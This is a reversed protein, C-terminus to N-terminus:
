KLSSKVQDVSKRIRIIAMNHDYLKQAFGVLLGHDYNGNRMAKFAGDSGTNAVINLSALNMRLEDYANIYQRAMGYNEGENERKADSEMEPAQMSFEKLARGALEAQATFPGEMQYLLDGFQDPTMHVGNKVGEFAEELQQLKNPIVLEELVSVIHDYREKGEIEEVQMAEELSDDLAGQGLRRLPEVQTESVLEGSFGPFDNEEKSPQPHVQKELEEYSM